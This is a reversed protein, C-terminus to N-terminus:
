MLRIENWLPQLDSDDLAMEKLHKKNGTALARQFLIRAQDLQDLQCAYCALNYPIIEHKPFRDLAPALANWAARLGGGPV